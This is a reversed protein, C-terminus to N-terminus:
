EITDWTVQMGYPDLFLVARRNTKIWDRNQCLDKLYSNAESHVLIIDDRRDSFDDRMKELEAYRVPDLEIFIYKSFRPEVRLAIRASGDLFEQPEDELLEPFLDVQNRAKAKSRYGTGAFADIYAFLFGKAKMVKAYAFLYKSVRELKETTWDGGFLHPTSPM